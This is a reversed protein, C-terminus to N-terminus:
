AIAREPVSEREDAERFRRHVQGAWGRLGYVHKNEETAIWRRVPTTFGTKARESIVSSLKGSCACLDRKTPPRDSAIAPALEALLHSDVFPVRVELSHAMSAWDADRLLQNRMYWCSELVAIQTHLSFHSVPSLLRKLGADSRLTELGPEYWSPDILDELDAELHMARRLFYINELGHSYRILGSLKPQIWRSPLARVFRETWKGTMQGGPVFRGLRMLKPIQPFSPYGGFLEDGGLGSLVVKLGLSAAARSVLYTNLGDASPQDMHAFFDDVVSEFEDRGIYVTTHDAGLLKATEEALPAEDEPTGRYEEFALTVTRLDAGVVSALAAITNSDIGASLFIGVPTDAVLHHRVTDLMLHELHEPTIGKAPQAVCIEPISSFPQAQLHPKGQRIRLVHGPLLMKVGTWWTFPEPIFGWLYFATLAASDRHRDVPACATLARAQSAFWLAGKGEGFYLPKIGYPDRVMWLEKELDDWLAFAYMGRLRCLGEAGWQAVVNILVETDSNTLFKIGSRELETRLSRYNYIEGNFTITWRGTADQMPQSGSAGTDIIALRRHGFIVTHDSSAWLGEGDPGRNAQRANLGKVASRDEARLSSNFSFVGSIGCM